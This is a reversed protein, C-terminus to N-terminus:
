KSKKVSMLNTLRHKYIFNVTQAKEGLDALGVYEGYQTYIETSDAFPEREGDKFVCGQKKLYLRKNRGIKNM